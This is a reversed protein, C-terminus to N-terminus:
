KRKLSDSRNSVWKCWDAGFQCDAIGRRMQHLGVMVTRDLELVTFFRLRPWGHLSDLANTRASSTRTTDLKFGTERLYCPRPASKVRSANIPTLTRANPKAKTSEALRM